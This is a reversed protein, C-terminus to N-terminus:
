MIKIINGDIFMANKREQQEAMEMDKSDTEIERETHANKCRM